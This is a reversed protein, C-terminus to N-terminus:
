GKRPHTREWEDAKRLRAKLDGGSGYEYNERRVPPTVSSGADPGAAAARRLAPQKVWWGNIIQEAEKGVHEIGAADVYRLTGDMDATLTPFSHQAWVRAMEPDVAGALLDSLRRDRVFTRAQQETATRAQQAADYEAKMAALQAQWEARQDAHLQEATKDKDTVGRLKAEAKEKESRLAENEQRLKEQKATEAALRRELQSRDLVPYGADVLLRRAAEIKAANEDLTPETTKDDQETGM